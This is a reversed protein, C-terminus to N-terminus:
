MAACELIARGICSRARIQNSNVRTQINQTRYLKDGSFHMGGREWEGRESMRNKTNRQNYIFHVHKEDKVFIVFYMCIVTLFARFNSKASLFFVNVTHKQNTHM